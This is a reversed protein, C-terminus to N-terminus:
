VAQAQAADSRAGNEGIAVLEFTSGPQADLGAAFFCDRHVRGLWTKSGSQVALVDYAYADKALDWDFYAQWGTETKDFSSVRFNQPMGPAAESDLIDVQGINVRSADPSSIGLSVRAIRGITAPVSAQYHRWPAAANGYPTLTITRQTTPDEYPTVILTLDVAGEHAATVRAITPESVTIDTKFLHVTCELPQSNGNELALSHAGEWVLSEDLAATTTDPQKEDIWYQWTLAPDANGADNWPKQSMQQGAIWFGSGVGINFTHRIPLRAYPSKEVIAHAVGDFAEYNWINSRGPMTPESLRGSWLPNGRPGSWFRQEAQRYLARGEPTRTTGDSCGRQWMENIVFTGWSVPPTKNPTALDSYRESPNFGGMQFESTGFAVEFPDFGADTVTQASRTLDPDPGDEGTTDWGRLWGYNMFLSDCLPRGPTGLWSVNETNIMNQYDLTGDPLMADYWQLYCEPDQAKLYELFARLTAAQKTTLAAEQNMFYGDFGFYRRLEILKDAIPFTGIPDQALLADFDAGERPWFWCGLARARNKHAAETWGANPLELVGYTRGAANRDKVASAPVDPTLQGHWSSFVDLYPWFRFTYVYDEDGIARAREDYISGRYDGDIALMQVRPDLSPHAQTQAFPAIREARPIHCVFHKAHPDTEPSWKLLDNAWFGYTSPGEPIGGSSDAPLVPGPPNDISPRPVDTSETRQSTVRTRALSQPQSTTPANPRAAGTLAPAALAGGLGIAGMRIFAARSMSPNAATSKRARM